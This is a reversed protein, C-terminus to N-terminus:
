LGYLECDHKLRDYEARRAGPEAPRPGLPDIPSAFRYVLRYVMIGTATNLWERLYTRSVGAGLANALWAPLVPDTALVTDLHDRVHQRLMTEALEGGEVALEASRRAHSDLEAQAQSAEAASRSLEASLRAFAQRHETWARAPRDWDGTASPDLSALDRAAAIAKDRHERHAALNYDHQEMRTRLTEADTMAQLRRAAERGEFIQSGLETHRTLWKDLEATATDPLSQRVQRELVSSRSALKDASTALEELRSRIDDLQRMISDTQEDARRNAKALDTELKETHRKAKDLDQEAQRHTETLEKVSNELNGLRRGTSRDISDFRDALKAVRRDLEETM